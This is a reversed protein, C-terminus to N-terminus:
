SQWNIVFSYVLNSCYPFHACSFHFHFKIMVFSGRLSMCICVNSCGAALVVMWGWGGDPAVFDKGLESKNRRKKKTKITKNPITPIDHPKSVNITENTPPATAITITPLTPKTAIVPITTSENNNAIILSSEKKDNLSNDNNKDNNNNNNNNTSNSNNNCESM